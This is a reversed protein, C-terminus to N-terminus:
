FIRQQGLSLLLHRHKAQDLHAEIEDARLSSEALKKVLRAKALFVQEIFDTLTLMVESVMESTNRLDSNLTTTIKM